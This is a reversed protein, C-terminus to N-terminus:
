LALSNKSSMFASQRMNINEELEDTMEVVPIGTTSEYRVKGSDYSSSNSASGSDRNGKFQELNVLDKESLRSLELPIRTVGKALDKM